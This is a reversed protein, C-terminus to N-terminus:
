GADETLTYWGHMLRLNYVLTQIGRQLDVLPRETDAPQLAMGLDPNGVPFLTWEVDMNSGCSSNFLGLMGVLRLLTLAHEDTPELAFVVIPYEYQTISREPRFGECSYYTPLGIENLVEVLPAIKPDLAAYEPTLTPKLKSM